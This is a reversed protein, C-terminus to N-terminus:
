FDNNADYLTRKFETEGLTRFGIRFSVVQDIASGDYRDDNQQYAVSLSFCSDDYAIGFGRSFLENNEIDYSANGFLRVYDSVKVSGSTRVEQRDDVFGYNPQADTFIYATSLALIPDVYRLSAEGRRLSANKEDFRGALGVTFGTGTSLDASAVYDSRDTELGSEIGANVLDRTAFSNRGALHFSQGAVINISAGNNFAASYRFGINARTGGEVRDFGSFKDREFLNTTDFVMSQADENPFSASIPKM